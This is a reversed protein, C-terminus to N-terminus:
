HKKMINDYVGIIRNAITSSDLGIEMIREIGNTRGTIEAFHLAKKIKNAFGTLEFSSLYCGKTNGMVWGIDGVDTAVIPCNCAMAEKIVNPSGEMFSPHLLVDVASLYKFVEKHPIPYPALLELNDNDIRKLAQKALSINKWKNAPNGIFLLYQTGEKLGLEQRYGSKTGEKVTILDVGNPIITSIKKKTLKDHINESKSIIADVFFQLLYTLFVVLKSKLSTRGRSIYEGLIDSGMLSVVVPKKCRSLVATWGSLAYHAHIIDFQNKKLYERLKKVYSLYPKIGKGKILFYDIYLGKKTLSGAQSEIFPTLWFDRDREKVVFLVRM